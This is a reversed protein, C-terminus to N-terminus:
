VKESSINDDHSNSAEDLFNHFYDVWLAMESLLVKKNLNTDDLYQFYRNFCSDHFKDIVKWVEAEKIDKQHKAQWEQDKSTEDRVKQIKELIKKLGEDKIEQNLQKQEPPIEKKTGEPVIQFKEPITIKRKATAYRLVHPSIVYEKYFNLLLGKLDLASKDKQLKPNELIKQFSKIKSAIKEKMEPYYADLPLKEVQEWKERRKKIILDSSAASLDKNQEVKQYNKSKDYSGASYINKEFLDKKAMNIIYVSFLKWDSASRWM